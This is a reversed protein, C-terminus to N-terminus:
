VDRLETFLKMISYCQSPFSWLDCPYAMRKWDDAVYGTARGWEDRVEVFWGGRLVGVLWIQIVVVVEERLGVALEGLDDGVRVAVVFLGHGEGVGRPDAVHDALEADAPNGDEFGGAVGADAGRALGVVAFFGWLERGLEWTGAGEDGGDAAGLGDVRFDGPVVAGAPETIIERLGTILRRRHRLVQLRPDTGRRQRVVLRKEVATSTPKRIHARM